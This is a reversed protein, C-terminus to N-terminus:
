MQDVVPVGLLSLGQALTAAVLYSLALRSQRVADTDAKLVSCHEYFSHYGSALEYLYNCLRHLELNEVLNQIMTPFQLLQLALKREEPHALGLPTQTLTEKQVSGKRFISQIRVYANQLYPATNGELALMRDWDFVYDKIRENSLDAYKVAGIGVARAVREAAAADLEVEKRLTAQRAREVAEDLVEALRVVDGERSKFPKRDQGLIAGFAVHELSVSSDAWGAARLTSFLMAFHDSQRADVVYIVRKAGLATVRYRAAALDTAAYGFGGDSKQVIMPLPEGEKNLFGAPFVVQAGNDERLLGLSRLDTVVEPLVPNYASEPRIDADTLLVGLRDYVQKMHRVSEGILLRWLALAEQDGSQLAVV